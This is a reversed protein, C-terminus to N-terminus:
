FYDLLQPAPGAFADLGPAPRELLGTRLLLGTDGAGSWLLALGRVHLAPADLHSRTLEGRGDQVSLLWVGEHEPVDPDVLRFAARTRVAADFGRAAVAAPADLVRLMWARSSSPAPLTAPVHLALEDVPGRWRVTGAVPGWTAVSRLLAATADRTSSVLEWVHLASDAGYGRGRDYSLYGTAVGGEQALAVVDHALVGQAGRPFSPGDRTLLGNTAQGHAQWLRTIDTVDALGATRVTAAVPPAVAQLAAPAVGTEDLSGVVEWGLPRYIGPATPFLVSISQGAARAHPLLTRVLRSATGRGRADPHVAVGAIGAMPVRRGGWWQSYPRVAAEAVLRGGDFAAWSRSGPPPPSVPAGPDGGFALMSLAWAQERDEPGVERLTLGSM